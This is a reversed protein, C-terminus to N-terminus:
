TVEIRGGGSWGVGTLLEMSIYPATREMRATRQTQRFDAGEPTAPLLSDQQLARRAFGAFCRRAVRLLELGRAAAVPAPHM